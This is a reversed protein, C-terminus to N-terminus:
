QFMSDLIWLALDLASIVILHFRFRGGAMGSGIMGLIAALMGIGICLIELPHYFPYGGTLVAHIFLFEVLATSITACSLGAFGV